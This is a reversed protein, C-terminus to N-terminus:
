LIPLPPARQGHASVRKAFTIYNYVNQFIVPQRFVNSYYNLNFTTLDIKTLVSYPCTDNSVIDPDNEGKSERTPLDASSISLNKFGEISCITISIKGDKDFSPMYGPAILAQM